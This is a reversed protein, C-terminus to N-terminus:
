SPIYHSMGPKPYINGSSYKSTLFQNTGHIRIHPNNPFKQTQMWVCDFRTMMIIRIIGSEACNQGDSKGSIGQDFKIFGQLFIM